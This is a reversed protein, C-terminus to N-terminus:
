SITRGAAIDEVEVCFLRGRFDVSFIFHGQSCSYHTRAHNRKFTTKFPVTKLLRCFAVRASHMIEVAVAVNM